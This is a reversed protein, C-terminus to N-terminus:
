ISLNNFEYIGELNIILPIFIIGLIKFIYLGLNLQIKFITQKNYFKM